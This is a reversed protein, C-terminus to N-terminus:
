PNKQKKFKLDKRIAEAITLGYKAAREKLEEYESETFRITLGSSRPNDAKPRGMKAM